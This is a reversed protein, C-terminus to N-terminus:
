AAAPGWEGRGGGRVRSEQGALHDDVAGDDPTELVILGRGVEVLPAVGALDPAEVEAALLVGGLKGGAHGAGQLCQFTLSLPRLSGQGAGGARRAAQPQWKVLRPRQKNM